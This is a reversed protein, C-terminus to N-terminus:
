CWRGSTACRIVSRSGAMSSATTNWNFADQPDGLELLQQDEFNPDTASIYNSRNLVHTYTLRTDLRGIDGVQRRYAVEVDIGSATLKAYNLPASLLSGEIIQFPQEGHPGGAPDLM